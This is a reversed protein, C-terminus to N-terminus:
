TSVSLISRLRSAVLVEEGGQLSSAILGIAREHLFNQSVAIAPDGEILENIISEVTRGIVHEDLTLVATAYPRPAENDSLHATRVGPLGTLADLIKSLQDKQFRREAVHDTELFRRLATVLGVVREKGVKMPRGISHHPPGPMRESSLYRDWWTWTAPSVDMDQHQLAVSEILDSRGILIGTAQPGGIAKGGSFAMLDPGLTILHTLNSVPPLSAAADVIVPVRYKQGIHVVDELSVAGRASGVTYAIAVTKENIAAEIQWPWVIGQGPYGLYGVEVLRAGSLRLAHTYATLHPRQIVIENPLAATAPLMDMKAPNLGAICAAAGLALGAAAGSTVYGSEAGTVEALYRGAADQLDEMRVSCRMAEAIADIVDPHLPSGGLRTLPGAANIIPQVGLADYIGM